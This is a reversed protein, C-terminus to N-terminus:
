KPSTVNKFVFTNVTRTNEAQCLLLSQLMDLQDIYLMPLPIYNNYDRHETIRVGCQQHHYVTEATHKTPDQACFHFMLVSNSENQWVKYLAGYYLM